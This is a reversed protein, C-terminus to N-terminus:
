RGVSLSRSFVPSLLMWYYHLADTEAFVMWRGDPQRDLYAYRIPRGDPPTGDNVKVQVRVVMIEKSGHATLSVFGM